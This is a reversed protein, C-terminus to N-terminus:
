YGVTGRFVISAYFFDFWVFFMFALFLAYGNMHGKVM